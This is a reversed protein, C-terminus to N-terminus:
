KMQQVAPAVEGGPGVGKGIGKYGHMAAMMPAAALMFRAGGEGKADGCCYGCTTAWGPLCPWCCPPPCFPFGGGCPQCCCVSMPADLANWILYGGVGHGVKINMPGPLAPPAEGDKHPQASEGNVVRLANAACTKAQATVRSSVPHGGLPQNTTNVGFLEPYSKSQLCENAVIRNGADLAGSGALFATNPGQMYCPLYVDYELSTGDTLSLTGPALVPEKHGDGAITGKLVEIDVEKLREMALDVTKQSVGSGDLIGGKRSLIVIRVDPFKIRLDGAVEVAITGAGGLVVTKASAIASSAARVEAFREDLSLEGSPLLLPLKSGTAIVISKYSMKRGSSFTAVKGNADVEKLAEHVYEVGKQSAWQAPDAAVMSKHKSPDALVVAAGMPWEMYTSGTCNAIRTKGKGLKVLEEVCHFAGMGSGVVLVDTESIM